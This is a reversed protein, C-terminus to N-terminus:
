KSDKASREFPVISPKDPRIPFGRRRDDVVGLDVPM